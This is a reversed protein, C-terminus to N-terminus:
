NWHLAVTVMSEEEEDSPEKSIDFAEQEDKGNGSDPCNKAWHFVSGCIACRSHKGFKNLPNKKGTSSVTKSTKKIVSQLKKGWNRSKVAVFAESKIFDSIGPTTAESDLLSGFIRRLASRVEEYKLNKVTSLILQKEKVDLGSNELLKCGFVEESLVM